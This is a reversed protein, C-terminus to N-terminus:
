EKDRGKGRKSQDKDKKDKKDEEGEGESKENPAKKDKVETQLFLVTASESSVQRKVELVEVSYKLKGGRDSKAAKVRKTVLTAPVGLARAM